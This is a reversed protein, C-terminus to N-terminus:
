YQCCTNGIEMVSCYRALISRRTEEPIPERCYLYVDYDSAQDFHEVARSGGLALAEVGDLACLEEFLRDVM